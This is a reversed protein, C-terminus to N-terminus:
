QTEGPTEPTEVKKEPTEPAKVKKEAAMVEEYSRLAIAKADIPNEERGERFADAEEKVLAMMLNRKFRGMIVANKAAMLYQENQLMISYMLKGAALGTEKLEERKKKNREERRLFLAQEDIPFSKSMLERMEQREKEIILETTAIIEARIQSLWRSESELQRIHAKADPNKKIEYQRMSEQNAKLLVANCIDVSQGIHREVARIPKPDAARQCLAVIDNAKPTMRVMASRPTPPEICSPHMRGVFPIM